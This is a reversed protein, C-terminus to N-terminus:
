GSTKRYPPFFLEDFADEPRRGSLNWFAQADAVFKFGFVPVSRKSFGRKFRLLEDSIGGLGGGLVLARHLGGAHVRCIWSLVQRLPSHPLGRDSTAGLHYYIDSGHIVTIAGSVPGEHDSAIILKAGEMDCVKRLYEKTFLYAASAGVREMNEIYMKHFMAVDDSYELTLPPDNRLQSRLRPRFSMLMEEWDMTLDVVIAEGVQSSAAHDTKWSGGIDQYLGLRHYAAIVGHDQYLAEMEDLQARLNVQLRHPTRADIDPYGYVSVGDKLDAGPIPRAILNVCSGNSLEFSLPNGGIRQAELELYKVENFFYLESM